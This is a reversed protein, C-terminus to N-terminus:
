IYFLFSPSNELQHKQWDIGSISTNIKREVNAVPQRAQWHFDDFYTIMTKKIADFIEYNNLPFDRLHESTSHVNQKLKSGVLGATCHCIKTLSLVICKLGWTIEGTRYPTNKFTWAKISCSSIKQSKGLGNKNQAFFMLDLYSYMQFNYCQNVVSKLIAPM